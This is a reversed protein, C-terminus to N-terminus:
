VFLYFSYKFEVFCYQFGYEGVCEFVFLNYSFFVKEWCLIANWAFQHGFHPTERVSRCCFLMRHVFLYKKWCLIANWAFKHGFHPTKRVSNCELCIPACFSANGTCFQMGPLNTGLILRKGYPDAASSCGTCLFTSKGVCFQMGPLNTGLILCKGYLIANWAFQHGFHPTKRVSRCCFLMRHGSCPMEQVSNFNLLPFHM